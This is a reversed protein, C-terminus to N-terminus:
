ETWRIKFETRRNKARGAESTNDAIPNMDGFGISEIRSDSIGKQVLYEKCADARKQSLLLNKDANGSNDTHGEIELMYPIQSLMITAIEDLNVYSASDLMASNSAFYIGKAALDIKIRLEEKVYPCGHNDEFSEDPCEDVEDNFGDNDSDPIPCGQLRLLGAENQCKDVNDALGDGDTDPCGKNIKKGPLQVCEDEVDPVGDNDTDSLVVIPKPISHSPIMEQKSKPKISHWAYMFGIQHMLSHINKGSLDWQYSSQVNLFLNSVLKVNTGLGAIANGYSKTQHFFANAGLHIYPSFVFKEPSFITLNSFLECSTLPYNQKGKWLGQKTKIYSSDHSSNPKYVSAFAISAGVNFFKSLRETWSVKVGPEWYLKQKKFSNTQHTSFLYSNTQPGYFDLANVYLGLSHRNAQGTATYIGFFILVWFSSIKIM